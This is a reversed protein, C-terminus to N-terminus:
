IASEAYSIDFNYYHLMIEKLQQKTLLFLKKELTENINRKDACFYIYQKKGEYNTSVNNIVNNYIIKDIDM